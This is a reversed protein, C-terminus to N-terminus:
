ITREEGQKFYVTGFYLLQKNRTDCVMLRSNM